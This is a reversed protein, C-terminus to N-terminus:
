SAAEREQEETWPEVRHEGSALEEAICPMCMAVVMKGKPCIQGASALTGQTVWLPQGCNLCQHRLSNPIPDPIQEMLGGVITVARVKEVLRRTLPDVM